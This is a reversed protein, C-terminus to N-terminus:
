DVAGEEEEDEVGGGREKSVGGRTGERWRGIRENRRLIKLDKGKMKYERRRRKMM